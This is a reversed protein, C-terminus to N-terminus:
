AKTIQVREHNFRRPAKPDAPTIDVRAIVLEVLRRRQQLDDPWEGGSAPGPIPRLDALQGRVEALRVKVTATHREIAAISLSGPTGLADDLEALRQELATAEAALESAGATNRITALREWVGPADLYTRVAHEVIEEVPIADISVKGCGFHLPDKKCRYTRTKPPGPRQGTVLPGKCKACWIMGPLLAKRTRPGVKKHTSMLAGAQEWTERDVIPEHSGDGIIEGGITAYGALRPNLLYAKLNTPLWPNDQTTFVGRETLKACLGTVSAGALIEKYVWRATEAEDSVLEGRMTYGFMRKGGPAFDGRERRQQVSRKWRDSKQRVEYQAVSALIEAIMQGTPTSLDVDGARVTAVQVKAGQVVELLETLDVMRRYLRDPHWVVIAGIKGTQIDTLMRQYAPRPKGSTASVDNDTYTDAIDWGKAAALQVCDEQQRTVGAADGTQDQSIRLYLAAKM